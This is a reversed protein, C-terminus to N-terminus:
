PVVFTTRSLNDYPGMCTDLHKVLQGTHVWGKYYLLHPLMSFSLCIKASEYAALSENTTENM